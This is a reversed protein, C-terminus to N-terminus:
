LFNYKELDSKDPLHSEFAFKFAADIKQGAEQEIEDMEAVAMKGEELVRKRFIQLPCCTVHKEIDEQRRYLGADPDGVGVHQRWRDVMYEIFVPGKGARAHEAAAKASEFVALVDMGDVRQAPMGFSGVRAVLDGAGQRTPLQSCVAYFNNECIFIVPLKKLVALNLSEFFVGEEVAADGFFTVAIDDKNKYQAAFAAGVAHPISGGVIASSGMLGVAPDVLHMSGGRGRACGTIKCHLEAILANLDGGKALYHAHGRHNSFVYDDQRLNACVGVAVAEQGLSLHVPTKMQDQPYLAEIKLETNRILVLNHWINKYDM